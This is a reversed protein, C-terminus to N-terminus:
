QGLKAVAQRYQEDDLTAYHSELKDELDGLGKGKITRAIVARPRGDPPTEFAALLKAIDHGDVELAQWGFAEFRGALSDPKLVEDTRGFAQLGNHDVIVTLNDLHHHGAFMAAEWVMGENCEGDSVLVFTRDPAGDRRAALAMGAGISLGHGLSGSSVEVGPLCNRDPHGGIVSGDQGFGKLKEVPCFGRIALTAYQALAAHGKSLIFRDRGPKAPDKPDIDLVGFYLAVLIDLCSTISGVHHTQTEHVVDFVLKKVRKAAEECIKLKDEPM